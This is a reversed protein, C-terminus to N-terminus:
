PRLATIDTNAQTGHTSINRRMGTSGDNIISTFLLAVVILMMVTILINRM